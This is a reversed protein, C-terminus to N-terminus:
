QKPLSIRAIGGIQAREAQYYLMRLQYEVTVDSRLLGAWVISDGVKRYPYEGEPLGTLRAGRAEEGGYGFTTGPFTQGSEASVVFPFTMADQGIQVRAVQPRVGGIVLRQVGAARVQNASLFYVRLRLHYQVDNLTPWAGDFDLSDGLRRPASLGAIAFEAADEGLRRLVIDTGPVPQGVEFAVQLPGQFALAGPPTELGALAELGPVDGLAGLDPLGFEEMLGQMQEFNEPLTTITRALEEPLPMSCGAVLVMGAGIL